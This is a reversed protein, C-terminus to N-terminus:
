GPGSSCAADEDADHRARLQPHNAIFPDCVHISSIGGTFAFLSLLNRELHPLTTCHAYFAGASTRCRKMFLTRSWCASCSRCVALLQLQETRQMLMDRGGIMM